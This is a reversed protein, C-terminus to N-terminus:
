EIPSRHVCLADGAFYTAPNYIDDLDGIAFGAGLWSALRNSEPHWAILDVISDCDTCRFIFARDGEVDEHFRGRQISVTSSSISWPTFLWSEPIRQELLWLIDEDSPIGWSRHQDGLGTPIDVQIGM